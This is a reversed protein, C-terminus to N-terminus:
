KYSSVEYTRKLIATEKANPMELKPTMCAQEVAGHSNIVLSHLLIYPQTVKNPFLELCYLKAAWIKGM